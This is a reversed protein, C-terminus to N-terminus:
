DHVIEQADGTVNKKQRKCADGRKSTSKSLSLSLSHVKTLRECSSNVVAVLRSTEPRSFNKGLKKEEKEDNVKCSNKLQQQRLQRFIVKKERESMVRAQIFNLVISIQSPFNLWLKESTKMDKRERESTRSSHCASERVSLEPKVKLMVNISFLLQHISSIKMEREKGDALCYTM